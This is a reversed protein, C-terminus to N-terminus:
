SRQRAHTFPRLMGIGHRRPFWIQWCRASIQSVLCWFNISPRKRLAWRSFSWFFELFHLFLGYLSLKPRQVSENPKLYFKVKWLVTYEIIQYSTKCTWKIQKSDTREEDKDEGDTNQLFYSSLIINVSAPQTWKLRYRKQASAIIAPWSVINIVM